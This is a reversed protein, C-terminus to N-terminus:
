YADLIGALRAKESSDDTRFRYLPLGYKEFIENKMKDREAQRGSAQHFSAGDVEIALKPRKGLSDYVLFDVHSQTKMVFREEEANLHSADRIILKLPVHLAVELDKKNKERLIFSIFPTLGSHCKSLSRLIVM